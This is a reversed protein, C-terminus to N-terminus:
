DDWGPAAYQVMYGKQTVAALVIKYNKKLSDNAFQLADGDQTVAALV